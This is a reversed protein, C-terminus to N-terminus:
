IHIDRVIDSSAQEQSAAARRVERVLTRTSSYNRFKLQDDLAVVPVCVPLKIRGLNLRHNILRAELGIQSFSRQLFVQALIEVLIAVEVDGLQNLLREGCEVADICVSIVM